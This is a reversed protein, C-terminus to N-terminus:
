IQEETQGRKEHEGRWCPDLWRCVSGGCERWGRPLQGRRHSSRREPGATAALPM